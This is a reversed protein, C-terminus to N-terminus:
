HKVRRKKFEEEVDEQWISWIPKPNRGDGYVREYVPSDFGNEEHVKKWYHPIYTTSPNERRKEVLQITFDQIVPDLRYFYTKKGGKQDVRSTVLNLGVENLRDGLFRIPKQKVDKRLPVLLTDFVWRYEELKSLFGSLSETSIETNTFKRGDFLLAHSFLDGWVFAKLDMPQDIKAKLNRTEMLRFVQERRMALLSPINSPTDDVEQHLFLLRELLRISEHRGELFAHVDDRCLARRNFFEIYHREYSLLLNQAISKSANKDDLISIFTRQDIAKSEMIAEIREHHALTEGLDDVTKGRKRKSEDKDVSVVTVGQREKYTVFNERLNNMSARQQSLILSGMRIFPDNELDVAEYDIPQYGSYVNATLNERFLDISVVSLDEEFFFTEPSIWCRTVNTQRVRSLQQDIEFHTNVMPQFVGYVVEFVIEENDFTLDIGTSLSPSTLVLDYTPLKQKASLLITQIHDSNSNESTM